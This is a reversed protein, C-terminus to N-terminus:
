LDYDGLDCDYAGQLFLGYASKVSEGSVDMVLGSALYPREEIASYSVFVPFGASLAWKYYASDKRKVASVDLGKYKGHPVTFKNQM